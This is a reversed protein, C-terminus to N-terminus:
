FDPVERSFSIGKEKKNEDVMDDGIYKKIFGKYELIFLEIRMAVSVEAIKTEACPEIVFIVMPPVSNGPFLGYTIKSVISSYLEGSVKM